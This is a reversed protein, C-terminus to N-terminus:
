SPQDDLGDVDYWLADDADPASPGLDEILGLDDSFELVRVLDDESDVHATGVPAWARSAAREWLVGIAAGDEVERTLLVSPRRDWLDGIAPDLDRLGSELGLVECGEGALEALRELDRANFAEVVADVLDDDRVPSWEDVDTPLDGDTARIQMGDALEREGVAYSEAPEDGSEGSRRRSSEAQDVLRELRAEATAEHRDFSEM